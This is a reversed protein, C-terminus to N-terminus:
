SGYTGRKILSENEAKIKDEDLHHIVGTMAEGITQANMKSLPISTTKNHTFM